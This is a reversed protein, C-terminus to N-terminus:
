KSITVLKTILSPFCIGRGYLFSDNKQIKALIYRHSDIRNAEEHFILGLKGFVLRRTVHRFAMSFFYNLIEGDSQFLSVKLFSLNSRPPNLM